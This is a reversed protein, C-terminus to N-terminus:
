PERRCGEKTFHLPNDTIYVDVVDAGGFSGQVLDWAQCHNEADVYITTMLRCLNEDNYVVQVMTKNKGPERNM